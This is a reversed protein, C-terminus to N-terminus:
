NLFTFPSAPPFFLLSQLLSLRYNALDTVKLISDAYKVVFAVILGGFSEFFVAAWTWRTYGHFFGNSAIEAGDIIGCAVIIGPVLSFLSLQINRLWVSAHNGKLAKEFWIGAFGSLSCRFIVALFGMLSNRSEASTGTSSQMQVLIVGFLIMFLTAWKSISLRTGLLLVSFLATTLIKLQSTIQYTAPDLYSVAVFLLMNQIFYCIAPVSM